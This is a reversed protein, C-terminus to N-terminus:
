PKDTADRAKDGAAEGADKLKDGAEDIRDGARDMSQDVKEGAKEFPGDNNDCGVLVGGLFVTLLCPLALKYISM